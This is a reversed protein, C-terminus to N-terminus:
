TDAPLLMRTEGRAADTVIWLCNETASCPQNLDLTFASRVHQGTRV